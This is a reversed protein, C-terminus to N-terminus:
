NVGKLFKNVVLLAFLIGVFNEASGWGIQSQLLLKKLGSIGFIFRNQKLGPLMIRYFGWIIPTILYQNM